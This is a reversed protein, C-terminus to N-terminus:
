TAARPRRLIAWDVDPRLDECCVLGDTLREIRPCQEAPVRRIGTLWQSVTPPKINLLNALATTGGTLHAAHKIAGTTNM